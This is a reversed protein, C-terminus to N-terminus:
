LRAGSRSPLGGPRRRPSTKTAEGGKAGAEKALRIELPDAFRDRPPSRRDRLGYAREAGLSRAVKEAVPWPGGPGLGPHAERLLEVRRRSWRALAVADGAERARAQGRAALALDASLATV